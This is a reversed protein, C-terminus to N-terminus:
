VLPVNLGGRLIFSIAAGIISLLVVWVIRSTNAKIVSVDEAITRITVETVAQQREVATLRLQIAEYRFDQNPM